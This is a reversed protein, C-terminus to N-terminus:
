GRDPEREVPVALLRQLRIWWSGLAEGDDARHVVKRAYGVTAQLAPSRLLERRTSAPDATWDLMRVYAHEDAPRFLYTAYDDAVTEWAYWTPGGDRAVIPVIAARGPLVLVTAARDRLSFLRRLAEPRKELGLGDVGILGEPDRTGGGGPLGQALAEADLWGTAACADRVFVRRHTRVFLRGLIEAGHLSLTAHGDAHVTGVVRLGAPAEEDLSARLDQYLARAAECALPHRGGAVPVTITGEGFTVDRFRLHVDVALPAPPEPRAAPPPAVPAALWRVSSPAAHPLASPSPPPGLYPLAAAARRGASPRPTPPPPVLLSTPPVIWVERDGLPCPYVDLADPFDRIPWGTYNLVYAVNGTRSGRGLECPRRRTDVLHEGWGSLVARVPQSVLARRAASLAHVDPLDTPWAAPRAQTAKDWPPETGHLLAVTGVPLSAAEGSVDTEFEEGRARIMRRRPGVAPGLIALLVSM